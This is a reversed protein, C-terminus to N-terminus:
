GITTLYPPLTLYYVGEGGLKKTVQRVVLLPPTLGKSVGSKWWLFFHAFVIHWVLTFPPVHVQVGLFLGIKQHTKGLSCSVNHTCLINTRIRIRFYSNTNPHSKLFANSVGWKEPHLCFISSSYRSNLPGMPLTTSCRTYM